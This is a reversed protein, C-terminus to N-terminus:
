NIKKKKNKTTNRGNKRSFWNEYDDLMFNVEKMYLDVQSGKNKQEKSRIKELFYARDNERIYNLIDIYKMNLIKIVKTECKEELIKNILYKNSYDGNKHRENLDSNLFIDYITRNMLEENFDKKLNVNLNKDLPYFKHHNDKLNNNLIELVYKFYFTKIKQIINDPRFKDHEPEDTYSEDKKRRGRAKINNNIINHNEKQNSTSKQNTKEEKKEEKNEEKKEEKKDQKEECEKVEIKEEVLNKENEEYYETEERCRKQNLHNDKLSPETPYSSQGEFWFSPSKPFKLCADFDYDNFHNDDIGIKENSDQHEIRNDEGLSYFDHPFNDENNFCFNMEDNENEFFIM